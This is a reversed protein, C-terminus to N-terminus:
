LLRRSTIDRALIAAVGDPDELHAAHGCGKLTWYQIRPNRAKMRRSIEVFKKDNAGAMCHFPPLSPLKAWLGPLAGTGCGALSAALGRPSQRRRREAIRSRMPECIRKQPAILPQSEWRECFTDIDCAEPDILQRDALRRKKRAAAEAIGPSAGILFCPLPRARHLYHLALRGGMSYGVLLVRGSHAVESRLKDILLLQPLLRCPDCNDPLVSKGHGPLDPCLWECSELVPSDWLAEFDLGSGTFGHLAILTAAKRSTGPVKRWLHIRHGFHRLGISEVLGM